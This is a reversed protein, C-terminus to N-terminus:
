LIFEEIEEQSLAPQLARNLAESLMKAMGGVAADIDAVTVIRGSGQEDLDCVTPVGIAVVPVGLTKADFAARHNGVGAGPQIGANSVQVVTGIHSPEAAALADVVVVCTPQATQLIGRVVEISELGTRGLVGPCLASVPRFFSFDGAIHRTVLLGDVTLPGLADPTVKRNGLGVVMVSQAADAPLLKQLYHALAAATKKRVAGSRDHLEMSVYTGRPKGLAQEGDADLINVITTHFADNEDTEASIGPIKKCNEAKQWISHAEMALDTRKM